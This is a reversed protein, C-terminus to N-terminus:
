EDFWGMNSESDWEVTGQWSDEEDKPKDDDDWDIEEDWDKPEGKFATDSYKKNLGFAEFIIHASFGTIFIGLYPWYKKDTVGKREFQMLAAGVIFLSGGVVTAEKFVGSRM